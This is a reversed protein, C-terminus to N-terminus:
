DHRSRSKRNSRIKKTKAIEERREMVRLLATLVKLKLEDKQLKAEAKLYRPYSFEVVEAAAEGFFDSLEHIDKLAKKVGRRTFKRPKLSSANDLIWFRHVVYNRKERIEDLRKVIAEKPFASSARRQLRGFDMDWLRDAAIKKEKWSRAKVLKLEQEILAWALTKELRQILLMTYAYIFFLDELAKKHDDASRSM